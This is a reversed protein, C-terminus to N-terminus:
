RRQTSNSTPEPAASGTGPCKRCPSRCICRPRPSAREALGADGGHEGVEFPERFIPLLVRVANMLNTRSWWHGLKRSYPSYGYTVASSILFASRSLDANESMSSWICYSVRFRACPYHEFEVIYLVDQECARGRHHPAVLEEREIIGGPAPRPQGFQQIPTWDVESARAM